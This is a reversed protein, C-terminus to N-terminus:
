AGMGSFNIGRMYPRTTRRASTISTEKKLKQLSSLDAYHFTTGDHSVSQGTSLIESIMDDIQSVTFAM